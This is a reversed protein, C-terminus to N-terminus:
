GRTRERLVNACLEAKGARGGATARDVGDSRLDADAWAWCVRNRRWWKDRNRCVRRTTRGATNRQRGREAGACRRATEPERMTRWVERHVEIDSGGFRLADAFQEGLRAN